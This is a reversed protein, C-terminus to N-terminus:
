HTWKCPRWMYDGTALAQVGSHCAVDESGTFFRPGLAAGASERLSLTPPISGENAFHWMGTTATPPLREQEGRANMVSQLNDFYETRVYASRGFVSILM